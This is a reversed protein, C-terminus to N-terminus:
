HRHDHPVQVTVTGINANGAADQCSTSVTYTRGPGSGLREARLLVTDQDVIQWDPDGPDPESSVVSKISCASASCSDAVNASVQVTVMKHNPPWLVGPVAAVELISPPETDWVSVTAQCSSRQGGPDEATLDVTNPGLGLPGAPDLALLLPLGEPDFSGADVQAADVAASCSADAELDLDRCLAVPPLDASECSFVALNDYDSLLHTGRLGVTGTSAVGATTLELRTAPEGVVECSMTDDIASARLRYRRGIEFAFPTSEFGGASCLLQLNRGLFDNSLRCVCNDAPFDAQFRVQVGADSPNTLSRVIVDAMVVTDALDFGDAWVAAVPSNAQTNTDHFLGGSESWGPSFTLWTAISGDEFDDTFALECSGPLDPRALRWVNEDIVGSVGWISGPNVLGPIYVDGSSPDVVTAIPGAGPIPSDGVIELTESVPDFRVIKRSSAGLYPSDPNWLYISGDHAVWPMTGHNFGIGNPNPIARLTESVPDFVEVARFVAPSATNGGFLYITGNPHTVRAGVTRGVSLSTVTRVTDSAPDYHRVASIGGGNWGGFLYVGGRVAPAPAVAIGWISAGGAIAAREAATGMALDVEVIRGHQGWGGPGNGPGLYVKGNSALAANHRENAIWQYPLAAAEYSWARSALDFSRVLASWNNTATTGGLLLLRGNVLTEPHSFGLVVSDDAV